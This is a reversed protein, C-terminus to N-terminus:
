QKMYQEPNMSPGYLDRLVDLIKGCVKDDANRGWLFDLHQYEPYLYEARLVGPKLVNKLSKVDSPDSLADQGGQFFVLPIRVDEIKYEPPKEAKYVVQNCPQPEMRFWNWCNLGYDYAHFQTDSYSLVGQKWHVMLKVSTGSPTYKLFTAWKDPDINDPNYGCFAALANECAHPVDRCFTGGLIELVISSPLFERFGLLKILIDVNTVAMGRLVPSTIHRVFAVPAIMIAVAIHEVVPHGSGFLAFATATGQSHGLFVLKKVSTKNLVYELTEPLDHRILEDLSFDWFSDYTMSSQIEFNSFSNGRSNGLWVDFGADALAFAVSGNAGNMAFAASSDLLGHQLFAVPRKGSKLGERGHPIRYVALRYGDGTHVIHKEMPYGLPIILDEMPADPELSHLLEEPLSASETFPASALTSVMTFLVTWQSMHHVGM